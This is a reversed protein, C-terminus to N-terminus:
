KNSTNYLKKAELAIELEEDTAIVRVAPQPHIKLGALALKRIIPSREGIGGTFIIYDVKGLLLCFFALYKRLRNLFVALAIKARKRQKVSFSKRGHYDVVPQGAAKLIERMDSSFGSLGLLGSKKNLMTEIEQVKLHAEKQLFLPIYPDLDGCRTGMVLGELPTFGLSTEIPQGKLCATMSCGNGLHISILNIKKLNKGENVALKKAVFQHSIGHFGYKRIKYKKQLELPLAYLYHEPTMDKYYATDFVLVNKVRPFLSLCAKAVALNVPNHLPALNNFQSIQWIIKKSAILPRYFKDGGHVVRHGVLAIERQRDGLHEIIIKLAQRHNTVSGTRIIKKNLTLFSGPLGIRELNGGLITNFDKFDFLKFKLTASGANLILIYKKM